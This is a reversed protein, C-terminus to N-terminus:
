PFCVIEFLVLNLLFIVLFNPLTVDILSQKSEKERVESTVSVRNREIKPDKEGINSSSLQFPRMSHNKRVKGDSSM